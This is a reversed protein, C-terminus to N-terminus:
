HTSPQPSLICLALKTAISAVFHVGNYRLRNNPHSVDPLHFYGFRVVYLFFVSKQYNATVACEGLTVFTM